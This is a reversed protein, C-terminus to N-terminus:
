YRATLYIQPGWYGYEIGGNWTGDAADVKIRFGDIAIGAGFNRAFRYETYARASWIEGEYKLTDEGFKLAFVGVGAGASWRDSFAHDYRLGLLPLPVNAKASTEHNLDHTGLSVSGRSLFSLRSWHVGLTVALEDEARKLLSYSYTIPIIELRLQTYLSAGAPFVEDGIQLNRQATRSGELTFRSYNFGFRHNAAFRWEASLWGGSTDQDVGLDEKLNLNSGQGLSPHDVRMQTKFAPLFAGLRLEFREEGMRVVGPDQARAAGAAVGLVLCLIRCLHRQM